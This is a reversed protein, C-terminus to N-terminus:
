LRASGDGYLHVAVGALDDDAIATLVDVDRVVAWARRDDPTRCSLVAHEPTGAIAMGRGRKPGHPQCEKLSMAGFVLGLIATVVGLISIFFSVIGLDWLPGVGSELNLAMCLVAYIAGLSLISVLFLALGSMM